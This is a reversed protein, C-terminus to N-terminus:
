ASLRRATEDALRRQDEPTLVKGTVNATTSVVLRGVERKLEELMRAYDQAAAEHSKAIIQQADGVAKQTEEEKVQAAAARAEQILRNAEEDAKRLIERREIEAEALHDASKKADDLGQSIKQRREALIKLVPKYAFRQLLICVISFSIIQALLHPWDVGFDTAIKEVQGQSSELALIALADIM